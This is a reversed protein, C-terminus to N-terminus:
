PMDRVIAQLVEETITNAHEKTTETTEEGGSDDEEPVSDETDVKTEMYEGLRQMSRGWFQLGSAVSSTIQKARAVCQKKNPMSPVNTFTVVPMGRALEARTM